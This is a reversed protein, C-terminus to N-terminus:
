NWGIYPEAMSCYRLHHIQDEHALDNEQLQQQLQEAAAEAAQFQRGLVTMVKAVRIEPSTVPELMLATESLGSHMLCDTAMQDLEALSQDLQSQKAVSEDLHQQLTAHAAQWEAMKSDHTQRLEALALTSMHVQAAMRMQEEAEVREAAEEQWFTLKSSEQADLLKLGKRHLKGHLSQIQEAQQTTLQESTYLQQRLSAVEQCWLSEKQAHDAYAAQSSSLLEAHAAKLESPAAAAEKSYPLKSVFDLRVATMQVNHAGLQEDKAALTAHLAQLESKLTLLEEARIDLQGSSDDPDTQTHTSLVEATARQGSRGGNSRPKDM